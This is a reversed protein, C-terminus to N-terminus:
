NDSMIGPSAPPESESRVATGGYDEGGRGLIGWEAQEGEAWQCGICCKCLEQRLQRGKNGVILGFSPAPGQKGCSPM